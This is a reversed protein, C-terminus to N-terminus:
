GTQLTAGKTVFDVKFIMVLSNWLPLLYSATTYPVVCVLMYIINAETIKLVWVSGRLMNVFNNLLM